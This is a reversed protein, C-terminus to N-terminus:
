GQSPANSTDDYHCGAAKLNIKTKKKKKKLFDNEKSFM